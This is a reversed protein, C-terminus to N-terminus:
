KRGGNKAGETPSKIPPTQKASERLTQLRAYVSLVPERSDVLRKFDRRSLKFRSSRLLLKACFFWDIPTVDQYSNQELFLVFSDLVDAHLPTGITVQTLGELLIAKQHFFDLESEDENSWASVRTLVDQAQSSWKTDNETRGEASEKQTLPTYLKKLSESLQFYTLSNWQSPLPEDPGSDKANSKVEDEGIVSLNMGKLRSQFTENFKVIAPPLSSKSDNSSETAGCNPGKFNLVMYDRFAQLLARSDVNRRDLSMLVATIAEFFDGYPELTLIFSLPDGHLDALVAAYVPVITRLEEERFDGSSLLRALPTLQVHSQTHRIISSVYGARTGGRIERDSFGRQLVVALADYYSDPVFFWNENCSVPTLQPPQMSEFLLKAKRPDTAVFQRVVRAQLSIRNLSTVSSAIAHLGQSTKDVSAGFPNRMVDDQAASAKEFASTMVKVKLAENRVFGNEVLTLSIDSAFEAPLAESDNLLSRVEPSDAPKIGSRRQPSQPIQKKESINQCRAPQFGIAVALLSALIISRLDVM